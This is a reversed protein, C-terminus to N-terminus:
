CSVLREMSRKPIFIYEDTCGEIPISLMPVEMLGIKRILAKRDINLFKALSDEGIFNEDFLELSDAIVMLGAPSNFPTLFGLYVLLDVLSKPGGIRASAVSLSVTPEDGRPCRNFIYKTVAEGDLVLGGLNSGNSGHSLLKGALVDRVILVKIELALNHRELLKGLRIPKHPENKGPDGYKVLRFATRNIQNLEEINWLYIKNKYCGEVKYKDLIGNKDLLSLVRQPLGLYRAALLLTFIHKLQILTAQSEPLIKGVHLNKELPISSSDSVLPELQVLKDFSGCMNHIGFNILEDLIFNCKGNFWSSEVLAKYLGNFKEWFYQNLKASYAFKNDGQLYGIFGDPWNSFINHSCTLMNMAYGQHNRFLDKTCGGLSKTFMHLMHLLQGLNMGEFEKLPYDASQKLGLISQNHVKAYIIEMLELTIPKAKELPAESYNAGCKCILLGPRIWNIAKNCEHCQFLPTISHKPCAMSISLDWFADIYGDEKICLPCIRPQTCLRHFKTGEGLDHEHLKLRSTPDVPDLLYSYRDLETSALGVIPALKRVLLQRSDAHHPAMGALQAIEIPSSYGNEETVRLMYGLLSEFHYPLPTRILLASGEIM